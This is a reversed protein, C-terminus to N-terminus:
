PEKSFGGSAARDSGGQFGNGDGSNDPPMLDSSAPILTQRRKRGTGDTSAGSLALNEPGTQIGPM